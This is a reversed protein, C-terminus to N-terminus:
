VVREAQEYSAGTQSDVQVKAATALEENMASASGTQSM